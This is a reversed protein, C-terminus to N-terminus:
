EEVLQRAQHLEDNDLTLAEEIQANENLTISIDGFEEEQVVNVINRKFLELIALFNVVILAPTTEQEILESFMFQKREIIKHRILRVYVEVPIPKAAIHESELLFGERREFTQACAYALDELRTDRLFDPLLGLFQKDPGFDRTHYRSEFDFCEELYDSANKINKYEILRQILLDRAENPSLKEIDEDTEIRQEPLLSAAKIELLTSAVLLFDSATELDLQEIQSVETLYQDAITAISISGIAVKQKSVLYLLLDFPGEFTDLHVRYSM